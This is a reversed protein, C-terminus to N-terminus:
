EPLHRADVILSSLPLPYGIMHGQMYDIGLRLVAEKIEESEVYEAVVQMKKMRALQCISEVIQYDLSSTLINRIFSGDIKLMDAHIDKMRSYSAYGTGFDDIAVKCGMRQLAFFTQNVQELNTLSDSETVEFLLQWPEIKYQELLGKVEAPFQMRGASAPTLNIAFRCGPLRERYKDMFQLTTELVWRDIKSSLGFEHAVPLFSEPLFVAGEGDNMRILIEHYNDGRAGEIRQAMLIFDGNDLASQLRNMMTIKNKVTNQVRKSGHHQLSEPHSSQLSLEAMTSLEGLLLYLHSVPQRVDCYSIGVQLQLPVGDWIFRFQKVRQDILAIREQHTECNLRVALDHGFLHYIKEEEDLVPRLYEALQQKYKIRLLVGYNRGLLELEPVSLFVLTMVSYHSIDHNLARLNPIMVVPDIFAARYAKTHMSRQRTSIASMMYITLSFMAYSSTVIALHLQLGVDSPLYNNFGRCLLILLPTWIITIFYLGYRTAGWLMVPLLLTLTYDTKFISGSPGAPSLLLTIVMAMLTSWLAFEMTTVGQHAQARTRSWLSKLFQPNRAIRIICYFLPLGTLTGVLVAQFNILMRPRFPNEAILGRMPEYWGFFVGIQFIMVFLASNFLVLWFMRQLIVQLSTFDICHRRPSFVRYGCLSLTIPFLFHFITLLAIWEGKLPIYRILLALVIGPIAAWGFLITLATMLALPLYILFVRGDNLVTNANCWIAFPFLLCPLVLPLAWWKNKYTRYWNAVQM